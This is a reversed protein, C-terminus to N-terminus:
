TPVMDLPSVSLSERFIDGLSLHILMSEVIGRAEGAAATSVSMPGPQGAPRLGLAASLRACIFCHTAGTDLLVTVRRQGQATWLSGPLLPKFAAV